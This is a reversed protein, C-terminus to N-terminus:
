IRSLRRLYSRKEPLDTTNKVKGNSEPKRHIESKEGAYMNEQASIKM